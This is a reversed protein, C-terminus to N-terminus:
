RITFTKTLTGKYNGTGTITVTATGKEVNNTYKVTYDTGKKLTIVTGNPKAKVTPIPKRPKGTYDLVTKSLTVKLIKAPNITFKKTISGAYDGRGYVTVEATGANVNNKYEVTYDAEKLTVTRGNVKAKVTVKPEIPAGTYTWATKELTVSSIEPQTFTVDLIFIVNVGKRAKYQYTVLGSEKVTFATKGKVAGEIVSAKAAKFGPLDAYPIKGNSTTVKLRNNVCQLETLDACKTLDLSTLHNNSCHLFKIKANTGTKLSTLQNDKCYLLTLPKCQTVDLKTLQNGQCSLSVLAASKSLDLETLLNSQCYLTKLAPSGTVDLAALKNYVCYLEELKPANLTLKELANSGCNVYTLKTNKSLVLKTLKGRPCNVYTLKTNKSLDLAKLATDSCSLATLATNKTLDLKTVPNGDCTFHTLATNESLDFTKIKNDHCYLQELKANKSVDLATLANQGCYLSKLNPFHAIGTLNKIGKGTVNMLDVWDVEKQSLTGNKDKDYETTVFSRFAADPFNTANIKVGEAALASSATLVALLVLTIILIKKNM